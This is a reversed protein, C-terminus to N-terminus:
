AREGQLWNAVQEAAWEADVCRVDIQEVRARRWQVFIRYHLRYRDRAPKPMDDFRTAPFVDARLFEAGAPIQELPDPAATMPAEEIVVIRESSMGHARQIRYSLDIVWAWSTVRGIFAGAALAPVMSQHLPASM